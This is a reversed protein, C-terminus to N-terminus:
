HQKDNKKGWQYEHIVIVAQKTLDYKAPMFEFVTSENQEAWAKLRLSHDNATVLDVLMLGIVRKNQDTNIYGELPFWKSWNGDPLICRFAVIYRNLKDNQTSM